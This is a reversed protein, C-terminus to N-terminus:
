NKTFIFYKKGTLFRILNVWLREFPDSVSQIEEYDKYKEINAKWIEENEDRWDSFLNSGAWWRTKCRECCFWHNRNVNFYYGENGCYCAGFYYPQILGIRYLYNRLNHMIKNM